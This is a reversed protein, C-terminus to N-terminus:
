CIQKIKIFFDIFDSNQIFFSYTKIDDMSHKIIAENIDNEGIDFQLNYEFDPQMPQIFDSCM